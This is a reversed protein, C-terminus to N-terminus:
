VMALNTGLYRLLYDLRNPLKPLIPLSPNSISREQAYRCMYNCVYAVHLYTPLYRIYTHIYGTPPLIQIYRPLYETCLRTILDIGVEYIRLTRFAPGKRWLKISQWATALGFGRYGGIRQIPFQPRTGPNEVPHPTGRIPGLAKATRVSDTLNRM